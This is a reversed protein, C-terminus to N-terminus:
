LLMMVLPVTVLCCLSSLFIAQAGLKVDGGYQQSFIVGLSPCPMAFSLLLVGPLLESPVPLIRFILVIMLPIGILRMATCSVVGFDRFSETIKGESLSMGILFMSLPTTINGFSNIVTAATEPLPIQFIFFIMGLGLAINPNSLLIKRWRIQETSNQGSYHCFMRVCLTYQISLHAIGMVSALLLGDAGFIARILPFGMFGSNGFASSFIWTAKRSDPIKLMGSALWSLALNLLIVGFCLAVGLLSERLLRADFERALSMFIMCPLAIKMMFATFDANAKVSLLHAKGAAFGIAIMGFIVMLNNIIISYNM